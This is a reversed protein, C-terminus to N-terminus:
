GHIETSCLMSAICGNLPLMGFMDDYFLAIGAARRNCTPFFLHLFVRWCLATDLRECSLRMRQNGESRCLPVFSNRNFNLFYTRKM